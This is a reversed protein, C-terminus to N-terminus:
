KFKKPRGRASKVRILRGQDREDREGQTKSDTHVACRQVALVTCPANMVLQSALDTGRQQEQEEEEEEEKEPERSGHLDHQNFDLISVELFWGAEFM